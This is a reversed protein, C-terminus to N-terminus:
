VSEKQLLALLVELKAVGMHELACGQNCRKLEEKLNILQEQEEPTM